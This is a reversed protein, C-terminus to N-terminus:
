RGGALLLALVFAISVLATLYGQIWARRLAASRVQVDRVRRGGEVRRDLYAQRRNLRKISREHVGNDVREGQEVVTRLYEDPTM